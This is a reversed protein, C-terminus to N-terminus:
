PRRARARDLYADLTTVPARDPAPRPPPQPAAARVEIRGIRVHVAPAPETPRAAPGLRAVPGAATPATPRGPDPLGPRTPHPAVARPNAAASAAAAPFSAARAPVASSPAAPFPADPAPVAPFAAPVASPPTRAPVATPTVPEATSDASGVDIPRVSPTAVAAPLGLVGSTSAPVPGPRDEPAPAASPGEATPARPPPIAAAALAVPRAARDDDAPAFRAVERHVPPEDVPTGGRSLADVPRPVAEGADAGRPDLAPPEFPNRRPPAVVDASGRARAALRDLFDAM